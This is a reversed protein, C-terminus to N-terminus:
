GANSPLRVRVMTGQQPRSSVEITGSHLAVVRRVLTLGLGSGPLDRANEGRYLEDFIHELDGPAIGRGSDNVEILLFRGDDSARVEVQNEPLSFKLANEILNRMALLLLDRDAQIPPLPWPVQQISLSVKRDRYAPTSLAWEQAEGIVEGVDVTTRDLSSEDMEALRRLNEVLTQLRQVQHSIRELSGSVETSAGEDERLNTIGLRITTLPNKLEHDLRRLFRQREALQRAAHEARAQEIRRQQGSRILLVAAWVLSVLFTTALFLASLDFFFVGRYLPNPLSGSRSLWALLGGAALVILPGLWRLLTKRSM